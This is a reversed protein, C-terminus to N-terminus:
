CFHGVTGRRPPGGGFPPLPDFLDAKSSHSLDVGIDGVKRSQFSAALFQSRIPGGGLSDKPITELPALDQALFEAPLEANPRVDHVEEADLAIQRDLDITRHM